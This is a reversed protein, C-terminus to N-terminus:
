QAGITHLVLGPTLVQPLVVGDGHAPYYVYLPVGDRGHDRLFATIAADRGTWDGKMYVVGQRAFADRVRQPSLAVRENVLCSICWAATMDIFVPKGQARLTDLRAQSFAESGDGPPPTAGAGQPALAPPVMTVAGVAFAVALLAGGRCSLVLGDRWGRGAMVMDQAKRVLWAALAVLVLGGALLPVAVQGGQLTAVWALWVCTALMPFALAQRMIEMWAGPRPLVRVLGPVSALLLYPAALGLGMAVFIAIGAVPSASLAGAIAAGMFPATCPTAVVVALVGTLVDGLHGSLRGAGGLAAIGTGFSFVGLLNLAIAFLLWCMLMVFTVSQFQFGWGVTDGAMRLGVILAGLAVFAAVIGAAYLAAGLLAARREGRAMRELSLVKMALVPFVCPMLNLIMGGAFALALLRALWAVGGGRAAMMAPPGGPRATVALAQERGSVDRIVVIGSLPADRHFGDATKLGLQLLGDRVHLVQPADHDVQGPQEPMFWADRVMAPSLGEGSLSLTGDPAIAAAFPSAVPRQAAARAFLPAQPSPYLPARPLAMTFQAHEPVCVTACVLWDATAEVVMDAGEKAEQPQLRVPLVVDGTYAYSMLPGDRLRQPVPWEIPGGEGVAGGSAHVALTVAEGADGPNLWYTHWGPALQLRLGFHMDQGPMFSDSDSLLTATGHATTVPTSQAAHGARPLVPGLCALACLVSLFLVSPLRLIALCPYETLLPDPGDYFARIIILIIIRDEHAKRAMGGGTATLWQRAPPVCAMFCAM